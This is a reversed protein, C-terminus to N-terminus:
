KEGASFRPAKKNEVILLVCFLVEAALMFIAIAVGSFLVGLALVALTIFVSLFCYSKSRYLWGFPLLHAGFIMAYIMLMKEPVASYAWMAILIYLVQNLTILLGLASLPNERNRFDIKLLKSLLFAMPVLPASCCFTFLNKTIIPLESLQIILIAAWAFVSAAIFHLGRKQKEAVDARLENLASVLYEKNKM